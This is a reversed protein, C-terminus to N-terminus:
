DDEGAARNQRIVHECEARCKEDGQLALSCTESMDNDGSCCAELRLAKIDDDTIDDNMDNNRETSGPNAAM